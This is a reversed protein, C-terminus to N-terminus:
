INDVCSVTEEFYKEAEDAAVSVSLYAYRNIDEVDFIADCPVM